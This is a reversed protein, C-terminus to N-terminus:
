NRHHLRWFEGGEVWSRYGGIAMRLHEDELNVIAMSYPCGSM